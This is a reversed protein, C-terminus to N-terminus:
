ELQEYKIEKKAAHKQLVHPVTAKEWRSFSSRMTKNQNKKKQHLNFTQKKLGNLQM